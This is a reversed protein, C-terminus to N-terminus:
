KRNNESGDSRNRFSVVNGRRKELASTVVPNSRKAYRRTMEVRTHGLTDRVLDLDEGQDLLQCGLSHRLANQLKINITAKKSAEKWIKNLDKNTYPKGDARVFVFSSLNPRTRELIDIAYQTLEYTRNKKTKTHEELVNEAFARKIVLKGDRICDKQIARVEQTRLGYEMGFEFIPREDEPIKVLVSNQQEFTLYTIEPLEFSLEPFPPIRPIDENDYAWRFMTKLAGMVNYKGKDSLSLNKKLKSLHKKRVHRMDMNGIEPIIHNKFYGRYDRLTKDSVDIDDLWETYYVQISLPSDPKWFKPNFSGTDVETRIAGIIKEAQSPHYFKEGTYPSEWIKHHKGDWYVDIYYRKMRKDFQISGGMYGGGTKQTIISKKYSKKDPYLM